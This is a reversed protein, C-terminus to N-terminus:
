LVIRTKTYFYDYLGNWTMSPFMLAWDNREFYCPCPLLVFLAVHLVYPRM